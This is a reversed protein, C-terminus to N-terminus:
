PALTNGMQLGKLQKFTGIQSDFINFDKLIGLFFQKFEERTPIPLTYGKKDKEPKFFSKPNKFVVKLFYSITRTINVSPYMSIIDLCVIEHLNENFKLKETLFRKKFAKQSNVLYECKKILPEIIQEAYEASGATIHSYGTCIPRLPTPTASKSV